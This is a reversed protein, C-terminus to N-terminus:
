PTSVSARSRAASAAPAPTATSPKRGAVRGAIAPQDDIRRAPQHSNALLLIRGRLLAGDAQAIGSQHRKGARRRECNEVPDPIVVGLALEIQGIRHRDGFAM